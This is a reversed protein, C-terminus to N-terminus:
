HSNTVNYMSHSRYSNPFITRHKLRPRGPQSVTYHKPLIGINWPAMSSEVDEGQLHFCWPAGSRKYAVVDCGLLGRSSVGGEFGRFDRM